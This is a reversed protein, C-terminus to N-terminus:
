TAELVGSVDSVLAAVGLLAIGLWLTRVVRRAIPSRRLAHLASVRQTRAFGIMALVAVVAVPIFVPVFLLVVLPLSRRRWTGRNIWADPRDARELVPGILAGFVAPIAVFLVIALWTPELVTFDVGDAHVLMSGVVAGAGAAATVRRLWTPGILSPAVLRYGLAGIIGVITGLALLGLTGGLTVRGIVFGDDSQLGRVSDPSTLRLVFMAVRGGVGGVVFGLAGGAILTVRLLDVARELDPSAGAADDSM